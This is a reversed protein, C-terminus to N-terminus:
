HRRQGCASRVTLSWWPCHGPTDLALLRGTAYCVIRLWGLVLPARQPPEAAARPMWHWHMMGDVSCSGPGGLNGGLPESSDGCPGM